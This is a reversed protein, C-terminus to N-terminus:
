RRHRPVQTSLRARRKAQRRRYAQISHLTPAIRAAWAEFVPLIETRIADTFDMMAHQFPRWDIVPLAPMLERDATEEDETM